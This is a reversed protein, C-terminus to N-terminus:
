GILWDISRYYNNGSVTTCTHLHQQVVTGLHVSRKRRQFGRRQHRWREVAVRLDHAHQKVVSCTGLGDVRLAAGGESICKSTLRVAKPLLVGELHYKALLFCYRHPVSMFAAAGYHSRVYLVYKIESPFIRIIRTRFFPKFYTLIRKVWNKM